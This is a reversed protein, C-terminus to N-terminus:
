RSLSKIRKHLGLGTAALFTFFINFMLHQRWTMQPLVGGCTCPRDPTFYIMYTIYFTFLSMIVLSAVLGWKRLAPILLLLAISLEAFPLFLSIPGAMSGILPSAALTKRFRVINGLKDIGTYVFLLILLASIIEVLIYRLRKTM